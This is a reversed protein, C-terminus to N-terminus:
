ILAKYQEKIQKKNKEPQSTLKKILRQEDNIIRKDFPRINISLNKNCFYVYGEVNYKYGNTRLFQRMHSEQKDLQVLPNKVTKAARNQREYTQSIHFDRADGSIRGSYNKVEVIQINKGGLVILDYEVEKNKHQIVNNVIVKYSRPLSKLLKTTQEEGKLGGKLVKIKQIPKKSLMFGVVASILAIGTILLSKFLLAVILLIIPILVQILIHVYLKYCSKRITNAKRKIRAM